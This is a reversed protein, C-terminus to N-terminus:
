VKEKSKLIAKLEKETIELKANAHEIIAKSVDNGLGATSCVDKVLDGFLRMINRALLKVIGWKNDIGPIGAYFVGLHDGALFYLEVENWTPIGRDSYGYPNGFQGINQMRGTNGDVHVVEFPMAPFRVPANEPLFAEWVAEALVDVSVEDNRSLHLGSLHEEIQFRIRDLYHLAIARFAKNSVKRNAKRVKEVAEVVDAYTRM